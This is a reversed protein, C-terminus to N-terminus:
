ANDSEKVIDCIKKIEEEKLENHMPLDIMHNRIYHSIPFKEYDDSYCPYGKYRHQIDNKLLADSVIETNKAFYMISGHNNTSIMPEHFIPLQRRYHIHILTRKSFLDNFYNFQPILLAMLYPSLMFNLTADKNRYNPTHRLLKLEEYLTTNDTLIVSGQGVCFPKTPSFSFMSVDGFTGAKEQLISPAADEIFLVKFYSCLQKITHANGVIGNSEIHVVSLVKKSKLADSLRHEDMSLTETNMDIPIPKLGLIKCAKFTAPYGWNPFIVENREPYLRHWMYLCMWIANSTSDVVLAHKRPCIEKIKNELKETIGENWFDYDKMYTKLTYLWEDKWFPKVRRIM